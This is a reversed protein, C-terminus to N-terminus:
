PLPPEGKDREVVRQEQVQLALRKSPDFIQDFAIFAAGGGRRKGHKMSAIACVLLPALVLLMGIAILWDM